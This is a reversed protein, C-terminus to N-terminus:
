LGYRNFYSDNKTAKQVTKDGNCKKLFFSVSYFNDGLIKLKSLAMKKKKKKKERSPYNFTQHIFILVSTLGLGM